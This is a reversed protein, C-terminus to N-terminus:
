INSKQDEADELDEQTQQEEVTTVRHEYNYTEHRNHEIPSPDEIENINDIIVVQEAQRRQTEEITQIILQGLQQSEENKFESENDSNLIKSYEGNLYMKVAEALQKLKSEKSEEIM